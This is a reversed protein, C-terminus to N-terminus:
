SRARWMSILFLIAILGVAIAIYLLFDRLRSRGGIAQGRGFAQHVMVLIYHDEHRLADLADKWQQEREPNQNQDLARAGKLLRVVKMEYDDANYSREFEENVQYIDPLSPHAETFYLMKREIESLPANEFKAQEVVKDILFQKAKTSEMVHLEESV